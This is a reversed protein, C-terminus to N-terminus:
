KVLLPLGKQARRCLHQVQNYTLNLVDAISKYSAYTVKVGKPSRTNFRLDIVLEAQWPRIVKM